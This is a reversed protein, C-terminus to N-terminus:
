VLQKSNKLQKKKQNNVKPTFIEKGRYFGDKAIHHRLHKSGTTKDYSVPSASLSDHSRRMDRRSRSKKSKQVAM